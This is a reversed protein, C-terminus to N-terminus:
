YINNVTVTSSLDKPSPIFSREISKSLEPDHGTSEPLRNYDDYM